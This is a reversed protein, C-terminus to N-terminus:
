SNNSKEVNSSPEGTTAVTQVPDPTDTLTPSPVTTNTPLLSPSPSPTQTAPIVYTVTPTFTATQTPTLTSTLTPIPLTLSPTILGQNTEENTATVTPTKQERELKVNWLLISGLCYCPITALILIGLILRTRDIQKLKELM